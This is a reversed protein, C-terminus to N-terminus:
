GPKAGSAAMCEKLELYPQSYRRRALVRAHPRGSARRAHYGGAEIQFAPPQWGGFFATLWALCQSRLENRRQKAQRSSGEYLGATSEPYDLVEEELM